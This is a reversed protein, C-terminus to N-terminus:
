SGASPPCLFRGVVQGVGSTGLAFGTRLCLCNGLCHRVLREWRGRLNQSRIQEGQDHGWRVHAPQMQLMYGKFVGCGRCLLIVSCLVSLCVRVQLAQRVIRSTYTLMGLLIDLLSALLTAAPETNTKNDRDLCLTATETFMNCVHGVLGLTSFPFTNTILCYFHPRTLQWPSQSAAYCSSHVASM